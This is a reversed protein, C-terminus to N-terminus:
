IVQRFPNLSKKMKPVVESDTSCDVKTTGTRRLIYHLLIRRTARPEEPIAKSKLFSRSRGSAM